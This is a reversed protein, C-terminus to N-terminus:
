MSVNLINKVSQWWDIQADFPQGKKVADWIIVGDAYEKVTQLEMEWYTKPVYTHSLKKVLEHYRPWIYPYVPKGYKASEKLRTISSKKWKESDTTISYLSPFIVDVMQAVPDMRKNEVEWDKYSQSTPDKLSHPFDLTPPFGYIGLKVNPAEDKIWGLVKKFKNVTGLVKEDSGTIPWREIDLCVLDINKIKWTKALARIRNEDKISLDDQSSVGNISKQKPSLLSSEYAVVLRKIKPNIFSPGNQYGATGDFIKFDAGAASSSVPFLGMFIFLLTIKLFTKLQNM